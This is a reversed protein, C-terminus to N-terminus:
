VFRFEGGTCVGDGLGCEIETAVLACLKNIQSCPVKPKRDTM